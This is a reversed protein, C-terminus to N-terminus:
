NGANQVKGQKTQTYEAKKRRTGVAGLAVELFKTAKECDPGSFGKADIQITGDESFTVQVEKM